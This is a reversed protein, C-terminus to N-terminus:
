DPIAAAAGAFLQKLGDSALGIARGTELAALSQALQQL